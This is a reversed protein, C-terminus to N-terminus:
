ELSALEAAMARLAALSFRTIHRALRELTEATFQLGPYLRPIVQRGYRYHLCQGVISFVCQKVMDEDARPGLLAAVIGCLRDHNPKIIDDIIFDFVGSPESMEWAMIKGAVVKTSQDLIESLFTHIFRELQQEPLTNRAAAGIRDCERSSLGLAHICVEKYLNEKCGFHYNVAAVNVEARTCIERVTTKHFGNEAFVDAATELIRQRTKLQETKQDPM